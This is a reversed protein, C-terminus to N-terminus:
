IGSEQAGRMWDPFEGQAGSEPLGFQVDVTLTKGPSQSQLLSLPLRLTVGAIFLRRDMFM